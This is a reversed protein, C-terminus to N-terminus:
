GAFRKRIEAFVEDAPITAKGSRVEDLRREAEAIWERDLDEEPPNLSRLLTDVLVAREEVPLSIAEALLEKVSM